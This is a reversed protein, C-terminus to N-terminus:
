QAVLRDCSVTMTWGEPAVFVPAEALKKARCEAAAADLSDKWPPGGRNTAANVDFSTAISVLLVAATAIAAILRGKSLPRRSDLLALAAGILLLVPVLAYRGGVNNHIDPPWTMANGLARSYSSLLFMAVSTAIAIAAVARSSSARLLLAVLYVAVAVTIAILFPWGWDAWASGGLELGLAAGNVVRQLFTTIINSTWLYTSTHEDSLATVPLQIAMALAFSGVVLADRRDRIALGRLIALPIFFFVAPTSLGTLLIALASLCAGWTTAPRWLLLWFVAFTMHWAVNAPSAVTEGAVPPLITLAVLLARLYASRIHGAAAFWVALGGIAVVLAAGLNMAVAADPLPVISGVEGLLRPMLVLYEAYPTSVDAFFGHSLAGGLFVPGDEAWLSSLATSPGARFLQLVTALALFSLLVVGGEWGRFRLTDPPSPLFVSRDLNERLRRGVYEARGLM